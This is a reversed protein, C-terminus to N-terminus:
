KLDEKLKQNSCSLMVGGTIVVINEIPISLFEIFEVFEIGSYIFESNKINTNAYLTTRKKENELVGIL